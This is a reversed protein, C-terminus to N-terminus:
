TVLAAYGRGRYEAVTDVGAEAVHATRRASDCIAVARGDVVIAYCPWSERLWTATFPFHEALLDAHGPEVLTVADPTTLAEPFVYAPGSSIDWVEGASEHAKVVARLAPLLAELSPAPIVAAECFQDIAARLAAPVDHRYARAIGGPTVGLYVRPAPGPPPDPELENITVLDGQSDRTFLADVRLRALAFDAVAQSPDGPAEDSM